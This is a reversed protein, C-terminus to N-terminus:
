KLCHAYPTQGEAGLAGRAAAGAGLLIAVSTLWAWVLFIVVGGLAGYANM